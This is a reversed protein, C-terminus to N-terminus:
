SAPRHDPPLSSKGIVGGFIAPPFSIANCFANGLFRYRNPLLEALTATFSYQAAVGLGTIVGSGILQNINVSTAAVISGIVSLINAGLFFYRRGFLDSLRGVLTMGVATSMTFAISIMIYSRDPGLDRNIEGLVNV